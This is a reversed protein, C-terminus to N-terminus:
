SFGCKRTRNGRLDIRHDDVMVDGFGRQEIPVNRYFHSPPSGIADKM